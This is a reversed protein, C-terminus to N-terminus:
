QGHMKKYGQGHQEADCRACQYSHCVICAVSAEPVKKSGSAASSRACLTCAIPKPKLVPVVSMIAALSAAVSRSHACHSHSCTECLAVCASILKWGEARRKERESQM